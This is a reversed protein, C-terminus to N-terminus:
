PVPDDGGVLRCVFRQEVFRIPEHPQRSREIREGFAVSGVRWGRDFGDVKGLGDSGGELERLRREFPGTKNEVDVKRGPERSSGIRIM